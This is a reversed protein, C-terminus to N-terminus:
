SAFIELYLLVLPASFLISDFRDLMGGHGPLLKGSDKVGASRKFKSELLDSQVGFIVILVAIVLWDNWALIGFGYYVAIGAGIGWLAGGITGEWTKGPSISSLKHKGLYKGILYAMIDNVWLICLFGLIVLSHYDGDPYFGIHMLCIFPFVVFILGTVSAAIDNVSVENKRYIGQIFVSLVPITDLFLWKGEIYGLLFLIHLGIIIGAAGMGTVLSPMSNKGAIHYFEYLAALAVGGFLLLFATEHLLIAGIFLVLFIAGTIIRQRISDM